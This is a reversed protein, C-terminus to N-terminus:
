SFFFGEVGFWFFRVRGGGFFLLTKRLSSFRWGEPEKLDRPRPLKTRLAKEVAWVGERV